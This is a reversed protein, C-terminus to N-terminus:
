QLNHFYNVQLPTLLNPPPNFTGMLIKDVGISCGDNGIINNMKNIVVLTGEAQSLHHINRKILLKEIVQPDSRTKWQISDDKPINNWDKANMPVDITSLTPKTIPNFHHRITSHLRRQYKIMILQQIAKGQKYDGNLKLALAIDSIHQRRLNNLNAITESLKKRAIVKNRFADSATSYSTNFTTPLKRIIIKLRNAHSIKTLIQSVVLRWYSLCMIRHHLKQSWQSNHLDKKLKKESFSVGITITIDINNLEKMDSENLSKNNTKNQIVIAKDDANRSLIYEIIVKKYQSVKKPHTSSLLRTHNKALDIFLNLLYQAIDVDM